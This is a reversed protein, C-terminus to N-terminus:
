FNNKQEFRIRRFRFNAESFDLSRKKQEKKNTSLKKTLGSFVGL